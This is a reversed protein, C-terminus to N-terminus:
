KLAKQKAKFFFGIVAGAVILVALVTPVLNSPAFYLVLATIIIVVTAFMAFRKWSKKAVKKNYIIGAVVIIAFAAAIVMWDTGLSGVGGTGRGAFTGTGSVRSNLQFNKQVHQREGTTDTYFIDVVFQGQGGLGQTGAGFRNVGQVGTGQPNFNQDSSGQIGTSLAGTNQAGVGSGASGNGGAGTGQGTRRVNAAANLDASQATVNFSAISYDGKNLSGIIVTDTGSITLNPQRLLKIIVSGANNSGINAVSFSLQGTSSYDSSVDFDTAGGVILGVSSSQTKAGNSDIYALSVTLPYIGTTINPDAAVSYNFDVTEGANIRSIFKRNDSGLPLVLGGSASWTFLVGSISNESPNTVSFILTSQNGPNISKPNLEVILNNQSVGVPVSITTEQAVLTGDRLYHMNLLLSYFGAPTGAKVKFKLVFTTASGPGIEKVSNSGVIVEIYNNSEISANVDIMSLASGNNTVDVSMNVVDGANISAPLFRPASVSGLYLYDAGTSDASWVGPLVLALLLVGLFITWFKKSIGKM